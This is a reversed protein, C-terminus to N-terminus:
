DLIKPNLEFNNELYNSNKYFAQVTGFTHVKYQPKGQFSNDLVILFTTKVKKYQNILVYPVLSKIKEYNGYNCNTQIRLLISTQKNLQKYTWDYSMFGFM